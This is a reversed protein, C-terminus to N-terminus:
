SQTHITLMNLLLSGTLGKGIQYLSGRCDFYFKMLQKNHTLFCKSCSSFRSKVKFKLRNKLFDTVLYRNAHMKVGNWSSYSTMITAVGKIIADYYAPMHISFFGNANIITNGENTGLHTGGDGLYHKACAAIKNRNRFSIIM